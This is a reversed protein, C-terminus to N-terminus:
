HSLHVPCLESVSSLSPPRDRDQQSTLLRSGSDSGSAQCPKFISLFSLAQFAVFGIGNRGDRRGSESPINVEDFPSRICFIDRETRFALCFFFIPHSYLGYLAVHCSSQVPRVSTCIVHCGWSTVHPLELLHCMAPHNPTRTSLQVLGPTVCTVVTLTVCPVPSTLLQRPLASTSVCLCHCVHCVPYYSLSLMAPMHVMLSQCKAVKTPKSTGCPGTM